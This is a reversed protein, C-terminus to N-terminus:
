PGVIFTWTLTGEYTDIYTNGGELLLYFGEDANKNNGWTKTRGSPNPVINSTTQTSNWISVGDLYTDTGLRDNFYRLQEQAINNRTGSLATSELTVRWPTGGTSGLSSTDTVNLSLTNETYVKTTYSPVKITPFLFDPPEEMSLSQNTFLKGDQANEGTINDTCFFFVIYKGDETPISGSPVSSQNDGYAYPIQSPPNVPPTTISDDAKWIKWSISYEGDPVGEVEGWIKTPNVETDLKTVITPYRISFEIETFHVLDGTNSVNRLTETLIVKYKGPATLSNVHSDTFQSGATPYSKYISNGNQDLIELVATSNPNKTEGVLSTPNISSPRAELKTSPRDQTLTFTETRSNRLIYGHKSMVKGSYTIEYTGKPLAALLDDLKQQEAGIGEGLTTGGQLIIWHDTVPNTNPRLLIEKMELTIRTPDVNGPQKANEFNIQPYLFEANIIMRVDTHKNMGYEYYGLWSSYIGEWVNFNIMYMGPDTILQPFLEELNVDVSGKTAEYHSIGKYVNQKVVSNGYKINSFDPFTNGYDLIQYLDFQSKYHYRSTSRASYRISVYSPNILWATQQHGHAYKPFTLEVGDITYKEGTGMLEDATIIYNNITVHGGSVSIPFSGRGDNRLFENSAMLPYIDEEDELFLEDELENIQKELADFDQEVLEEGEKDDEPNEAPNNEEDAEKDELDEDNYENNEEKDKPDDIHDDEKKSASGDTNELEEDNDSVIEEDSEEIGEEEIDDAHEDADEDTDEDTDETTDEDELPEFENEEISTNEDNDINIIYDANSIIVEGLSIMPIVVLLLSLFVIIGKIVRRKNGNNNM